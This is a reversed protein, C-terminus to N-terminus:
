FGHLGEDGELTRVTALGELDGNVGAFGVRLEDGVAFDTTPGHRDGDEGAFGM